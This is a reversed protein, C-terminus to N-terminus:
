ILLLITLSIAMLKDTLKEYVYEYDSIRRNLRHQLILNLNNYYLQALIISFKSVVYDISTHQECLKM